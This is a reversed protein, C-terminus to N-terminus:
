LAGADRANYVSPYVPRIGLGTRARTTDVIGEWPDDLPRSAADVPVPEGNLGLVEVTSVPADDAVNFTTGALGDARLARLFAQAVDAHHVLHLRKHTPWERAWRLAEALHPDGDGYVFALRLVRLDLGSELHQEQLAREAAAKTEPYVGYSGDPALDDDERAPRGRGPGYVLNTSAFVLRRVGATVCARGVGVTADRNVAVAEEDPVGRFAAALHVVADAGDVAERLAAEDRLDGQVVEAGRKALPEARTPDRALARATEGHDLLRPVLRSGIRGTAGTVLITM